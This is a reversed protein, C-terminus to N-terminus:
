PQGVVVWKTGNFRKVTVKENQTNDNYAIYPTGNPSISITTYASFTVSPNDNEDPGLPKWTQAKLAVPLIFSLVFLSLAYFKRM